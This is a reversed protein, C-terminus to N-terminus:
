SRVAASGARRRIANGGRDAVIALAVSGVVLLLYTLLMGSPGSGPALAARCAEDCMALLLTEVLMGVVGAGLVWAAIKWTLALWRPASGTARAILAPIALLVAVVAGIVIPAGSLGEWILLPVTLVGLVGGLVVAYSTAALYRTEEAEQPWREKFTKGPPRFRPSM